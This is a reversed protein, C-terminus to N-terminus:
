EDLDLSINLVLDAPKELIKPEDDSSCLHVHKSHAGCLQGLIPWFKSGRHIWQELCAPGDLLLNQVKVALHQLQGAVISLHPSEHRCRANAWNRCKAEKRRDIVGSAELPRSADSGIR